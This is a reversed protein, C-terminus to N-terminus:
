FLMSFSASIIPPTGTHAGSEVEQTALLSAMQHHHSHSPALASYSGLRVSDAHQRSVKELIEQHSWLGKELSWICKHDIDSAACTIKVNQVVETENIYVFNRNPLHKNNPNSNILIIDSFLFCREKCYICM